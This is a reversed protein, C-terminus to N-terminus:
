AMDALTAGEALHDDLDVSITGALSMVLTRRGQGCHVPCSRISVIHRGDRILIGM